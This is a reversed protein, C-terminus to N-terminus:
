VRAPDRETEAYSEWAGKAQEGSNYGFGPAIALANGGGIRLKGELSAFVGQKQRETVDAYVDMTVAIGSHGMIRQITRLNTENECFRTCFTHRLIHASFRPLPLAAAAPTRNYADVIRRLLQNVTAPCHPRRSNNLFVFDRAGGIEEDCGGTLMQRRQETRLAERVARLMPITRFSAPTKPAGLRLGGEGYSLAADVTITNVAFDVSSWRLGLAEGVRCGTGLMFTFLPMWRSYVPHTSVFDVFADQEEITLAARRASEWGSGRRLETLAGEACNRRLLGDRVALGLTPYILSNTLEVTSPSLGARRLACFFAKVDSFRIADLRMRGLTPAVHLAWVRGYTFRSSDRLAGKTALYLEFEDNLTLRAAAFGDIEDLRDRLFQDEKERLSPEAKKGDAVPDTPLLRASSFSRRVGDAGKGRFRYRGDRLQEEGTRLVRGLRDKRTTKM